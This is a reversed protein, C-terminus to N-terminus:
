EFAFHLVASATDFINQFDYPLPHDSNETGPICVTLIYSDTMKHFFCDSIKAGAKGMPLNIESGPNRVSLCHNGNVRLHQCLDRFPQDAISHFISRILAPDLDRDKDASLPRFQLDSIESCANGLFTM